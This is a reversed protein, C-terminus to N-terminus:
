ADDGRTSAEHVNRMASLRQQERQQARERLRRRKAAAQAELHGDLRKRHDRDERSHLEKAIRSFCVRGWPHEPTAEECPVGVGATYHDRCRVAVTRDILRREAALQELPSWTARGSPAPTQHSPKPPIM